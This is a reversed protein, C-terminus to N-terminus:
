VGNQAFRLIEQHRLVFDKTVENALIVSPHVDNSLSALFGDAHLHLYVM